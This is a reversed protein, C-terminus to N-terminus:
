YKAPIEDTKEGKNGQNEKTIDKAKGNMNVEKWEGIKGVVKGSTLVKLLTGNVKHGGGGEKTDYTKEKAKKHNNNDNKYEENNRTVQ